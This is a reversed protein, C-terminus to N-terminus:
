MGNFKELCDKGWQIYAKLLVETDGDTTFEHGLELLQDRLEIYNYLEGNYSLTYHSFKFPQNSAADLDIIALRAHGIATQGNVLAYDSFDPGRHDLLALSNKFRGEDINNVSEIGLIGCM